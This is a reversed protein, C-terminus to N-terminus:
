EVDVVVSAGLVGSDNMAADQEQERQKKEQLLKAVLRRAQLKRYVNQVLVAAGEDTLKSQILEMSWLAGTRLTASNVNKEICDLGGAM